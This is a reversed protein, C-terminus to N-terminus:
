LLERAFHRLLSNHHRGPIPSHNQISNWFLSSPQCRPKTPTIRRTQSQLRPIAPSSKCTQLAAIAAAQGSRRAHKLDFTFKVMSYPRVFARLTDVIQNDQSKVNKEIFLNFNSDILITDNLPQRASAYPLTFLDDATTVLFPSTGDPQLVLVPFTVDTIDAPKLPRFLYAFYTALSMLIAGALLLLARTTFYRAPM